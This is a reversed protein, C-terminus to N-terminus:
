ASIGAFDGEEQDFLKPLIDVLIDVVDM